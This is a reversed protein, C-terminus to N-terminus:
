GSHIDMVSLGSLDHDFELAIEKAMEENLVTADDPRHSLVRHLEGTVKHAPTVVSASVFKSIDVVFLFDPIRRHALDDVELRLAKQLLCIELSKYADRTPRHDEFVATVDM